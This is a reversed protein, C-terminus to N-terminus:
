QEHTLGWISRRDIVSLTGHPGTIKRGTIRTHGGNADIVEQCRQAMSDVAIQFLNSEDVANRADVYLHLVFVLGLWSPM